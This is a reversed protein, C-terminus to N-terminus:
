KAATKIKTSQKQYEEERERMQEFLSEHYRQVGHLQPHQLVLERLSVSKESELLMKPNLRLFCLVGSYQILIEEKNEEIVKNYIEPHIGNYVDDISLVLDLTFPVFHPHKEGKKRVYADVVLKYTNGLFSLRANHIVLEKENIYINKKPTEPKISIESRTLFIQTWEFKTLEASTRQRKQANKWAHEMDKPNYM